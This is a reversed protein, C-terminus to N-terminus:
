VWPGIYFAEFMLEVARRAQRELERRNTWQQDVTLAPKNPDVHVLDNRRKRLHQLEPNTGVADLLDKTNARFGPLETERLAADVVAMALIIVAGWAGACVTAQVDASLACAQESVLYASEGRAVDEVGEFWRRRQEWTERSPCDLHQM